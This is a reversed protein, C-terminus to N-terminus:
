VKGFRGTSIVEAIIKEPTQALDVAIAGEDADPTELTALQSDLLNAPMFHGPRSIVRRQLVARDGVLHVFTVNGAAARIRDRYARRLASCAIVKPGSALAAGVADLWPARDADTLPQGQAMKAINSDPHLNDGDVFLLGLRRALAAGIRSKGCGSVGMVVIRAVDPM